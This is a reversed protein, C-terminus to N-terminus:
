WKQNAAFYAWQQLRVIPGEGTAHVYYRSLELASEM